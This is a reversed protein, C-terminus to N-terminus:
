QVELVCRHCINIGERMIYCFNISTLMLINNRSPASSLCHATATLLLPPFGKQSSQMDVACSKACFKLQIKPKISRSSLAFQRRSFAMWNCVNEFCLLSLFASLAQMSSDQGVMTVFGIQLPSRLQRLDYIILPDASM